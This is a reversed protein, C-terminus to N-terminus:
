ERDDNRAQYGIIASRNLRQDFIGINECRDFGDALATRNIINTDHTDTPQQCEQPSGSM